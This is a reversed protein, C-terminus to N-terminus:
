ARLAKMMGVASACFIGDLLGWTPVAVVLVRVPIVQAWHPFGYWPGLAFDDAWTEPNGFGLAWSYMEYIGCGLLPLLFWLVLMFLGGLAVLGFRSKYTRTWRHLGQPKSSGRQYAVAKM